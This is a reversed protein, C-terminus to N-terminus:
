WEPPNSMRKSATATNSANATGLTEASSLGSALALAATSESSLATFALSRSAMMFIDDLRMPRKTERDALGVAKSFVVKGDKQVLVVAGPIDGKQVAQDLFAALAAPDALLLLGILFTM